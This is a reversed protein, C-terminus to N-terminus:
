EISKHLSLTASLQSVNYVTMGGLLNPKKNLVGSYKHALIIFIFLYILWTIHYIQKLNM